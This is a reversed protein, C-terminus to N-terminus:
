IRIYGSFRTGELIESEHVCASVSGDIAMTAIGSPANVDASFWFLCKKNFYERTAWLLGM